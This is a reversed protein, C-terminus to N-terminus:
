GFIEEDFFKGKKVFSPTVSMFLQTKYHAIIFAFLCSLSFIGIYSIKIKAIFFKKIPMKPCIAAFM